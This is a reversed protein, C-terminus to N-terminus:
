TEAKERAERLLRWRERASLAFAFPSVQRLAQGRPGPDELAQVIAPVGQSLIERWEAVYAPHAGGTRQWAEVRERAKVAITPDERLRAAVACHLLLSRQDAVQHGSRM